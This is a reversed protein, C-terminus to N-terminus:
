TLPTVKQFSNAFVGGPCQSIQEFLAILLHNRTNPMGKSEGDVLSTFGLVMVEGSPLSAFSGIWSLNSPKLIQDLLQLEITSGDEAVVFKWRRVRGHQRGATLVITQHLVTVATVGERGHCRELSWAPQIVTQNSNSPLDYVAIGGARTGIVICHSSTPEQRRWSVACTTWALEKCQSSTPKRELYLAERFVGTSSTVDDL